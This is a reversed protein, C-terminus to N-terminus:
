SSPGLIRRIFISTEDPGDAIGFVPLEDNGSTALGMYDGLFHGRAIPAKLIDFSVDTLRVEDGWNAAVGCDEAAPSCFVAWHDTLEGITGDNRFDYYTVTVVGADNVAVSPVFAQQRLANTANDPTQNVRVPTTWSVGGDTSMAFAVEEVGRFRRDQWVAYLNGNNRDVAVDFLISADRVPEKKDPTVTGSSFIRAARIPQPKTQFTAGQDFSRILALNFNFGLGNHDNNRFNLIETFFDIVTGSPLVVIQNAITQNNAGPDYIAHAPEWTEGGDSTRSFYAPGKFGLGFRVGFAPPNVPHLNEPNIADATTLTLRDWVAYVFDPDTPDATISNKDNLVRPDSDSILTIPDGWTLGGDTSQSVLMANPGFGGPRGPPTTNDLALSFFYADGNPAFTLWPDTAREFTGGSCLSIGPIVVSNWTDGGDTSVGAVLGRAGGNDWRDQQWGAVINESNTPNVEVWPEIESDPYNIGTNGPTQDATCGAFPSPALGSVQVLPGVPPGAAASRIDALGGVLILAGIAALAASHDLRRPSPERLSHSTKRHTLM